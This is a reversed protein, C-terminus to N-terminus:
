FHPCYEDCGPDCPDPLLADQHCDFCRGLNWRAGIVPRKCDPCIPHDFGWGCEEETKGCDPCVETTTAISM